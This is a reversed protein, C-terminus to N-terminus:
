VNECNKWTNRIESFEDSSLCTDRWRVIIEPVLLSRSSYYIWLNAALFSSICRIEVKEDFSLDSSDDYATDDLLRNLRNQVTRELNHSFYDPSNKLIHIIIELATIVARTPCWTIYQSLVSILDQEVSNVTADNGNFIIKDIAILGDRRINDQNSILAEDIRNYVDTKQDPFIHLCAAEAALSPLGYERVEKFLRKLSTKIEDPSDPSLNPGVVEVLLKLVCTFRARFEEPISPLGKPVNEEEHLRDKDADWWELLRQLIEVADEATWISKGNGNAGLIERVIPINGETIHVNKDQKNKQIPFSTLKVYNKFLQVPDIEEPHPFRLFAFKYFDTGEPLSYQDTIRWIARALNKNQGDDLLQLKHLTVLSTIAWRRHDPNDSAAQCFLRGILGPQIEVIPVSEPKQNLELVLFPNPFELPNSNEPFPIKLLDPVLNYQEVKSMSSILRNALNKVNWYNTKAPSAYIRIIFNLILRKTDGSCKCCLRSMVEPLVQALRVGYNSNRFVNGAHIDDQCKNLADLYNQIRQDAEHATFKCIAERSFLSDVGKTDGLRVLTAIAWFSSYEAIHQLSALMAKKPVMMYNSVRYPLGVEECFRLFSYSSLVEQDAGYFHCTRSVRGIDFERKETLIKRQASPRDLKLEYLKLENWPDCRFAKLEDWRANQQQLENRRQDNRITRLCQDWEAKRDNLRKGYLDNWAEDFSNFREPPKITSNVQQAQKSRQKDQKWNDELYDKILKEEEATASKDVIWTSADRVYRFLLMQYSEDSVSLYSTSTHKVNRKKRSEVLALRIQEDTDNVQGIEALGAARKVMWYPRTKNPCWNKLRQKANPLDLTFLSFLFGEYNLFERQEASLHDSLAKLRFEAKRWKDFCGEERYFRLMAVAIALWAQQLDSWPLDQFKEERLHIQCNTSPNGNQFPWYKELLNECFEAINNFIPLLCRELRWILEFAYQLDLGLPSKETDPLYDVWPNTFAWLNERNDYPLILWGPYTQRVQRWEETIKQIEEIRNADHAPYKTQPNYPWDLANPNKSRIYDFFCSLAKKHDHKDIGDCCSLDVVIIGRQTLLRLRASSLEFAGVLYIKQTKNDLNDRIWGIWQLFNPDDGSFGILCFINELLAQQVTNVFPAYNHPYRRYDEETIILPGESSFSGHLKVIRPKIAYPIDEKNVVPEYRRLEVKTSARELLTDYNTTFVDVWPLELLEVHLDSPEVNQEPINSRLLNELTSRDLAAQVEEALQLVNLYKQKTPEPTGGHVKQYFLDGLQNWDPFEEGANKSFGAGVMVAARGGWLREAIEDLYLRISDPVTVKM